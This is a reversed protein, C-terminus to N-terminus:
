AYDEPDTPADDPEAAQRAAERQKYEEYAKLKAAYEAADEASEGERGLITQLAINLGITYAELGIRKATIVRWTKDPQRFAAIPLQRPPIEIAEGAPAMQAFLKVNTERSLEPNALYIINLQDASQALLNLEWKVGETDNPCMVVAKSAAVLAKVVDQWGAGREPVFIRAAGLPPTPDRPDGIAILPGYPTAHELLIEDLTRPNAVGAPAKAMPDAAVVRLRMDDQDFTRLFVVPKRVDWERVGQYMKTAFRDAVGGIWWRLLVLIVFAGAMAALLLLANRETLDPQTLSLAPPLLLLVVFGMNIVTILYHLSALRTGGRLFLAVYAPMGLIQRITGAPRWGRAGLYGERRATLQWLAQLFCELCVLVLLARFAINVAIVAIEVPTRELLNTGLPAGNWYIPLLLATVSLWTLFGWLPTLLFATFRRHMGQIFAGMFSIFAVFLFAMFLMAAFQVPYQLLPGPEIRQTLFSLFWYAAFFTILVAVAAWLARVFRHRVFGSVAGDISTAKM